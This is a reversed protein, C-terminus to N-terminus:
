NTGNYLFAAAVNFIFSRYVVDLQDLTDIQQGNVTHMMQCNYFLVGTAEIKELNASSWELPPFKTRSM